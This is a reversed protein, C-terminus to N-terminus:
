PAARVFLNNKCGNAESVQTLSFCGLRIAFPVREVSFIKKSGDKASAVSPAAPNVPDVPYRFCTYPVRCFCGKPIGAHHANLQRAQSVILYVGNGDLLNTNMQSIRPCGKWLAGCRLAFIIRVGIIRDRKGYRM